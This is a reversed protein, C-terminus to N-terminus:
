LFGRIWCYGRNEKKSKKMKSDRSSLLNNGGMTRLSGQNIAASSCKPFTWKGTVPSELQSMWKMVGESVTSASINSLSISYPRWFHLVQANGIGEQESGKGMGRRGAWVWAAPVNPLQGKTSDFQGMYSQWGRPVSECVKGQLSLITLDASWSM